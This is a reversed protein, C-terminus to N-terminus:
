VLCPRPVAEQFTARGAVERSSGPSDRREDDAANVITLWVTAWRPFRKAYNRSKDSAAADEGRGRRGERRRGEDGGRVNARKNKSARRLPSLLLEVGPILSVSVSSPVSGRCEMGVVSLEASTNTVVRIFEIAIRASEREDGPACRASEDPAIPFTSRTVGRM